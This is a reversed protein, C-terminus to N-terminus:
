AGPEGAELVDPLVSSRRYARPEEALTGYLLWPVPRSCKERERELLGAYALFHHGAVSECTRSLAAGM